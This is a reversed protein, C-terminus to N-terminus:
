CCSATAASFRGAADRGRRRLEFDSIIPRLTAFSDFRELRTEAAFVSITSAGCSALEALDNRSVAIDRQPMKWM